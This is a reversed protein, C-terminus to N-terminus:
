GRGYRWSLIFLLLMGVLMGIAGGIWKDRWDKDRKVVTRTHTIIKKRYSFSDIKVTQRLRGREFFANVKLWIQVSDRNIFFHRLMNMKTNLGTNMKQENQHESKEPETNMKTNMGSQGIQENKHENQGFHVSKQVTQPFSIEDPFHVIVQENQVDERTNMETNLLQENEYRSEYYRAKWNTLSCHCSTFLFIFLYNKMMRGGSCVM